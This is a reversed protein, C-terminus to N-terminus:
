GPALEGELAARPVIARLKLIGQLPEVFRSRILVDANKPSVSERAGEPCGRADIQDVWPPARLRAQGPSIETARILAFSRELRICTEIRERLMGSFETRRRREEERKVEHGEHHDDEWRLSNPSSKM